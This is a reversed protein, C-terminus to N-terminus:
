VAASRPLAAPRRRARREMDVWFCRGPAAIAMRRLEEGLNAAGLGGAFGFRLLSAPPSPWQASAKGLGMSDDFLFSVQARPRPTHCPPRPLVVCGHLPTTEGCVGGGM